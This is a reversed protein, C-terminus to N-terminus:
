DNSLRRAVEESIDSLQRKISGRQTSIGWESDKTDKNHELEKELEDRQERLSERSSLYLHINWPM